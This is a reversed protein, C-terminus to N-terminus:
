LLVLTFTPRLCLGNLSALGLQLLETPLALGRTVGVFVPVPLHLYSPFRFPVIYQQMKQCQLAHMCM